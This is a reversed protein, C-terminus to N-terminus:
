HRTVGGQSVRRCYLALLLADARGHDKKRAFQPAIEPFLELVRTVSQDKGKGRGSLMEKKWKAARVLEVKLRLASAIGRWLGVGLGSAFNAISGNGPMAHLHEIAVVTIDGQFEGQFEALIGVMGPVNYSRRASGDEQFVPADFIIPQSRDRLVAIAGGLGPDIGIFIM